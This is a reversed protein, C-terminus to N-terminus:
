SINRNKGQKIDTVILISKCTVYCKTYVHPIRVTTTSKSYQVNYMECEM